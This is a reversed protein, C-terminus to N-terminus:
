PKAALKAEARLAEVAAELHEVLFTRKEPENPKKAYENFADGGILAKLPEVLPKGLRAEITGALKLQGRRMTKPTPQLYANIYGTKLLMALTFAVSPRQYVYRPHRNKSLVVTPMKSRLLFGREVLRQLSSTVGHRNTNGLDNAITEITPRASQQTSMYSCVYLYVVVDKPELVRFGFRRWWTPFQVFYGVKTYVNGPDLIHGEWLNEADLLSWIDAPSSVSM